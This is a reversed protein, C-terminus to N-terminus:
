EKLERLDRKLMILSAIASAYSNIDEDCEECEVGLFDALKKKIVCDDILGDFKLIHEDVVDICESIADRRIIKEMIM